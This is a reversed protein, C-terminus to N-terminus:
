TMLAESSPRNDPGGGGSGAFDDFAHPTARIIHDKNFRAGEGAGDQPHALTATAPKDRIVAFAARRAHVSRTLASRARLWGSVATQNPRWATCRASSRAWSGGIMAM